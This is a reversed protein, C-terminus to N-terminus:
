EAAGSGWVLKISAEGKGKAIFWIKGEIGVTLDVELTKLHFGDTDAGPGDAVVPSLANRIEELQGRLDDLDILGSISEVAQLPSGPASLDVVKFQTGM